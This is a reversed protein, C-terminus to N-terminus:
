STRNQTCHQTDHVDTCDVGYIQILQNDDDRSLFAYFRSCKRQFKEIEKKAENLFLLNNFKGIIQEFRPLFICVQTDRQAYM